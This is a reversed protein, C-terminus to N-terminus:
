KEFWEYIAPTKSGVNPTVMRVNDKLRIFIKDLSKIKFSLGPHRKNIWAMVDRKSFRGLAKMAEPAVKALTIAPKFPKYSTKTKAALAPKLEIDNLVSLQAELLEIERNARQRRAQAEVLKSELEARKESIHM